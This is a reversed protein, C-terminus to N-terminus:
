PIGQVKEWSIRLFKEPINRQFNRPCYEQINGFIKRYITVTVLNNGMPKKYRNYLYKFYFLITSGDNFSLFFFLFM